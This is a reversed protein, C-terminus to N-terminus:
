NQYIMKMWLTGQTEKTRKTTFRKKVCLGRLKESLVCLSILKCRLVTEFIENSKM